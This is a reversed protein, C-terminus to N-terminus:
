SVVPPKIFSLKNRGVVVLILLINEVIFNPTMAELIMEECSAPFGLELQVSSESVEGIYVSYPQLSAREAIAEKLKRIEYLTCVSPPKDIIMVMKTFEESLVVGASIAELYVNIVTSKEFIELSKCYKQMREQLLPGCFKIVVQQLIEYNCYSCYRRLIAFMKDMNKAMLIDDESKHFFKTHPAKKAVPLDLLRDRFRDLFPPDACEKARLEDRTDSMLHSFTDSLRDIEARAQSVMDSPSSPSSGCAVHCVSPDDNHPLGSTQPFSAESAIIPSLLRSNQDCGSCYKTALHEALANMGIEKLGAVIKDWSSEVEQNFWAQVYRIKRMNGRNEASIEDLTSLEVNLQFFLEKSQEDNLPKLANVIDKPSIAVSAM